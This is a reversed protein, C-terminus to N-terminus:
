GSRSFVHDAEGVDAFAVRAAELREAVDIEVHFFADHGEEGPM